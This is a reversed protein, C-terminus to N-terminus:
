CHKTPDYRIKRGDKSRVFKPNTARVDSPFREWFEADRNVVSHGQEAGIDRACEVGDTHVYPKASDAMPRMVEIVEGTKPHRFCYIPM